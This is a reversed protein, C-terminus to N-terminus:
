GPQASRASRDCGAECGAIGERLVALVGLALEINKRPTIRVPLLLLPAAALLDLKEIFEVTQAELKLFRAIDLGNPVVRIREM